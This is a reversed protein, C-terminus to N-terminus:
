IRRDDIPIDAGALCFVGLAAVAQSSDAHGRGTIAKIAGTLANLSGNYGLGFHYSGPRRAASIVNGKADVLAVDAKSAGGDVALVTRDPFIGLLERMNERLIGRLPPEPKTPTFIATM